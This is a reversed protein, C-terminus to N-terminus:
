DFVAGTLRENAVEAVLEEPLWLILPEKLMAEPVVAMWTREGTGLAPIASQDRTRLFLEGRGAVAGGQTVLAAGFSTITTETRHAGPMHRDVVTWLPASRLTSLLNDQMARMRDYRDDEPLVPPIHVPARNARAWQVTVHVGEVGELALGDLLDTAVVFGLVTGPRRDMALRCEALRRSLWDGHVGAGRVQANGGPSLIILDERTGTREPPSVWPTRPLEAAVALARAVMLVGAQRKPSLPAAPEQVQVRPQAPQRDDASVPAAGVAHRAPRQPAQVRRRFLTSALVVLALAAVAALLILLTATIRDTVGAVAIAIGAVVLVVASWVVRRASM